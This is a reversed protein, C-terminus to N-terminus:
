TNIAKYIAGYLTNEIKKSYKYRGCARLERTELLNM